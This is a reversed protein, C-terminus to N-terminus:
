NVNFASNSVAFRANAEHLQKFLKEKLKKVLEPKQSSLDNLEEIDNELNYLEISENEYFYILKFNDERIASCPKTGEYSIPPHYYPFHWYISKRKLASTKGQLLPLLSEGDIRGPVPQGFWDCLTPFIDWQIVPAASENGGPTLVGPWRVIFPVRIGGEYLTWKNGKKGQNNSQIFIKYSISRQQWIFTKENGPM